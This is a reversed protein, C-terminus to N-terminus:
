LHFLTQAIELSIAGKSVIDVIQQDRRGQGPHRASGETSDPAPHLLHHLSLSRQAGTILPMHEGSGEERMEEDSESEQDGLELTLPPKLPSVSFPGHSPSPNHANDSNTSEAPNVKPM